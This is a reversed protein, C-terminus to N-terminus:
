KRHVADAGRQGAPLCLGNYEKYLFYGVIILALAIPIPKYFLQECKEDLGLLVLIVAPVCAVIIKLWLMISDKKITSGNTKTQFPWIKKWFLIIVALIAGLQIVVNFMEKFEESVNLNLFEEVLILHGTSSVPLWETIGEVIGLVISKILEFIFM